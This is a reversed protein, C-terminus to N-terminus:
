HKRGIHRKLDSKRTTAYKCHVCKMFNEASHSQMHRDFARESLIKHCILCEVTEHVQSHQILSKRNKCIKDCVECKVEIGDHVARQHMKLYYPDLFSNGCKDCGYTEGPTTANIGHRHQRQHLKLLNNKLFTKHCTECLFSKSHSRKHKALDRNITTQYSCKNCSFISEHCGGRHRDLLLQNSFRGYCVSCKHVKNMHSRRPAKRAPNDDCNVNSDDNFNTQAESLEVVIVSSESSMPEVFAAQKAEDNYRKLAPALMRKLKFFLEAQTAIVKFNHFRELESFCNPCIM